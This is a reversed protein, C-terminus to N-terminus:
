LPHTLDTPVGPQCANTKSRAKVAEEVLGVKADDGLESDLHGRRRFRICSQFHVNRVLFIERREDACDTVQHPARDDEVRRGEIPLMKRLASKEPTSEMTPRMAGNM